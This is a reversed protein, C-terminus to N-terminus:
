YRKGQQLNRILNTSDIVRFIEAFEVGKVKKIRSVEMIQHAFKKPSKEVQSTIDSQMKATTAKIDIQRAMNILMTKHECATEVAKSFVPTVDFYHTPEAVERGFYWNAVPLHPELKKLGANPHKDFGAAWSAEAMAVAVLRHDQNDEYLFSDPDFGIILYPKFERIVKIYEKRLEVESADGLLDTPLNLEYVTTIGIADMASDFERKNRRITEQETLGFSDWRDDTARIVAVEWNANVLTIVTGGAFLVLDDAHAISILARKNGTKPPSLRKIM